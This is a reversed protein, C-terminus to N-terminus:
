NVNQTVCENDITKVEDIKKMNDWVFLQVRRSRLFYPGLLGTYIKMYVRVCRYLYPASFVRKNSM